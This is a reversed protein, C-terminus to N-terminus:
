IISPIWRWRVRQTYDLYVPDQCLLREEALSKIVFLFVGVATLILNRWSWHQLVYGIMSLFIASYIPHRLYKYAGETVLQRQAPVIGCNRGLSLRAWLGLALSSISLGNIFSTPLIPSGPRWIPGSLFVWYTAVFALAWYSFDTAIRQPPRRTGMAVFAVVTQLGMAALPFDFGYPHLLVPLFFPLVAVM